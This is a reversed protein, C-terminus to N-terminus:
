QPRDGVAASHGEHHAEVLQPTVVLQLGSLCQSAGLLPQSVGCVGLLVVVELTCHSWLSLSCRCRCPGRGVVRRLPLLSAGLLMRHIPGGEGVDACSRVSPMPVAPSSGCCPLVWPGPVAAALRGVHSCGRASRSTRPCRCRPTDLSRRAQGRSARAPALSGAPRPRPPQASVLCSRTIGWVAAANTPNRNKTVGPMRNASRNSAASRALAGALM